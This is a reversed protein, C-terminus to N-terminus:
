APTADSAFRLGDADSISTVRARIRPRRTLVDPTIFAASRIRSFYRRYVIYGGVSALGGGLVYAGIALQDRASDRTANDTSM